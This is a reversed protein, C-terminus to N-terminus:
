RAGPVLRRLRPAIEELLPPGHGSCLADIQPMQELFGRVADRCQEAEQSFGPHALRLNRTTRIPPTGVLIADGSFLTATAAHYLMSSGETHGPVHIAEWGQQWGGNGWTEDVPTRAPWRDEVHCLLETYWRARGRALPPPPQEGTLFPADDAHCAVPCRFHERLAGANGAHDSHRHTLLIGSLDGPGSVGCTALQKLLRRLELPHGADILWRRGGGDDMLWVNSFRIHETLHVHPSIQRM